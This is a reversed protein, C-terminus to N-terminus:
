LFVCGEIGRNVWFIRVKNFAAIAPDFDASTKALKVFATGKRTLARSIMKYDSHLQRGREVADDCDKICSEFQFFFSLSPFLLPFFFSFFWLWLTFYSFFFHVSVGRFNYSFVWVTSVFLSSLFSIFAKPVKLIHTFHPFDFCSLM